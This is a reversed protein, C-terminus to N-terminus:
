ALTCAADCMVMALQGPQDDPPAWQNRSRTVAAQDCTPPEALRYNSYGLVASHLDM